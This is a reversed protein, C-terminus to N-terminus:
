RETAPGNAFTKEGLVDGLSAIRSFGDGIVSAVLAAILLGPGDVVALSERHEDVSLRAGRDVVNTVITLCRDFGIAIPSQHVKERIGAYPTCFDETVPTILSSLTKPPLVGVEVIGVHRHERLLLTEVIPTEGLWYEM